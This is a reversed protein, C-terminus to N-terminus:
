KRTFKAEEWLANKKEFTLQEFKLGREHCLKEMVTFRSYFKQNAQRLASEPDIGMRRSINVLTFFVDGFEDEKEAQTAAEQFERVEESLKDLIGEINDWDFGTQAARRQVEQSYALAPMQRPVSALASVEPTRETKKIQEWNHVVEEASDVHADGFVHPHRRILKTNIAELVEELKFENNESAIQTHLIIQLQLDGLETCLKSRDNEDLAELVEYSEQLLYEKLSSHTQKQDWPCGGPARLRAIIEVLRIFEAAYKEPLSIV